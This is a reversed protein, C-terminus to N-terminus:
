EERSTMIWYLFGVLLSGGIINGLTVPILNKIFIAGWSINKAGEIFNQAIMGAPLFYMNAISHEYGLAVFTTIPIPIVLLRTLNNESFLSLLVALCVLWNCLIGRFFAQSFTLSVKAELIAYAREAILFNGMSFLGSLCYLLLLLLAGSFNGAYVMLWNILTERWRHPSDFCRYALLCNGTFLETKGLIVMILGVSFALGGLLQNLGLPLSSTTVLTFLQAAFGIYAGALIAAIFIIIGRRKETKEECWRQIITREQNM